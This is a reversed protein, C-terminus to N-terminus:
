CRLTFIALRGSVNILPVGSTYEFVSAWLSPSGLCLFHGLYILFQVMYHYASISLIYNAVVLEAILYTGILPM